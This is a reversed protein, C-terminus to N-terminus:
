PVCLCLLFRIRLLLVSASVGGKYRASFGPGLASKIGVATMPGKERLVQLFQLALPTHTYACVYLSCMLRM